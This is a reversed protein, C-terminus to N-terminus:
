SHKKSYETPTCNYAEKFCKTFYSHDNFGVTYGVQSINIDSKKLLQAALKLRQSRIFESASLGTLAKIKRHLQMRSLGVAKSFAEISFSSEVLNEDLVVQVKELFREDINTIAIDKPRLIIEQSYRLQLKKRSEILKKVKLKLLKKDFPKTIYDDAGTEIGEFRSEVEAKATLLIIPIHSTREDTKLEKTLAIGDKEPMMIDSIILDPIHELALAAGIKGNPATMVNYATDFTQKLLTRLDANDEVVLLIPLESDTFEEADETIYNSTIPTKTIPKTSTTSVFAENKFSNKDVPLTVTFTTWANPVSNVGIAGKHLEVLEKVLALGIGTGQNQENAQYFRQFINSLEDTTLGKGTNKIELYLKGANTYAHAEISGKKPTYKIANSLLNVVIKELADKDFWLNEDNQKIHVLYSIGKQKASYSFSGSLASILKLANANHIHLKLQGADIKSLDLVQNVLSLLRESNQKAVTFQQRKKDSLADDNLTDNIPDAILTLPTRFEHSINAFFNSKLKDLEKLKINTKQRNRYLIFLFLGAITTIGLGGLFLNRQNKKQQEALENQSTLLTIEQEKKETQYKTELDFTKETIKKKDIKQQLAIYEEYTNIALSLDNNMKYVEILSKTTELEKGFDDAEKCEKIAKKYYKISTDYDIDSYFDGLYALGWRQYTKNKSKVALDYYLKYDKEAEKLRNMKVLLFGRVIVGYSYSNQTPAEKAHYAVSENLLKLAEDYNNLSTKAQAIAINLEQVGIENETKRYLQKAINYYELAKEYGHTVRVSYGLYNNIQARLASTRLNPETECISDALAYNRFAKDHEFNQFWMNGISIYANVIFTKNNIKEGLKMTKEFYYLASDYQSARKFEEGISSYLKYEYKSNSPLDQIGKKYQIISSDSNYKVKKWNAIKIHSTYIGYNFKFDKSLILAKKFKQLQIITDSENSGEKLLNMVALSDIERTQGFAFCSMFFLFPVLFYKM